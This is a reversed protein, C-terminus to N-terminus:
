SNLGNVILIVVSLLYKNRDNYWKNERHRIAKKGRM